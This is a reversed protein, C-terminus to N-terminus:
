AAARIELSPKPLDLAATELDFFPPALPIANEWREWFEQPAKPMGAFPKRGVKRGVAMQALLLMELRERLQEMTRGQTALDYELCQAVWLDGDRFVVARISYTEPM